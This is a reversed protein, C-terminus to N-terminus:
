VIVDRPGPTSEDIHEARLPGEQHAKLMSAPQVCRPPNGLGRGVKSFEAVAHQHSVKAISRDGGEVRDRAAEQAVEQIGVSRRDRNVSQPAETKSGAAWGARSVCQEECGSRIVFCVPHEASQRGNWRLQVVVVLGLGKSNRGAPKQGQAKPKALPSYARQLADIATSLCTIVQMNVHLHYSAYEQRTFDVSVSPTKLASASRLRRRSSSRRLAFSPCVNVSSEACRSM